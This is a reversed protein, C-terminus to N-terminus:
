NCNNSKAAQVWAAGFGANNCGYTLLMYGKETGYGATEGWTTNWSNKIIWAGAADDWGVLTIGHNVTGSYQWRATGDNVTPYPVSSTPVPWTPETAGTTGGQVCTFIAGGAAHQILDGVSHAMGSHWTLACANFVGKTYASFAPTVQVAIALPGYQCLAQKIDSTSPMGTTGVYGWAKAKYPRKVTTKCTGKTGAYPYDAETASGKDILYQFAWWGGGCGYGWPNCDLTDQESSNVSKNNILRYSGEFAGHTGFAWCSGCGGQDRVATAGANQRWDWKAATASCAASITQVLKKEIAQAGVRNQEGIMAALNAPPVLGTIQELRYDLATTYGVEFTFAKARAQARLAELQSKIQPPASIERQQYDASVAPKTPEQADAGLAWLTVLIASRALLDNASRKM